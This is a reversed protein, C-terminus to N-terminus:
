NEPDCARRKAPRQAGIRDACRLDTKYPWVNVPDFRFEISRLQLTVSM